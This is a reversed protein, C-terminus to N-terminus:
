TAARERLGGVRRPVAQQRMRLQTGLGWAMCAAGAMACAAGAMAGAQGHMWGGRQARMLVPALEPGPGGLCGARCGCCGWFAAAGREAVDAGAAAQSLRNLQRRRWPQRERTRARQRHPAKGHAPCAAHKRPPVCDPPVHPARCPCGALMGRHARGLRSCARPRPRGRVRALRRSRAHTSRSRTHTSRAHRATICAPTNFTNLQVHLATCTCHLAHLFSTLIIHHPPISCSQSCASLAPHTRACAHTRAVCCAGARLVASHSVACALCRQRQTREGPLPPRLPQESSSM